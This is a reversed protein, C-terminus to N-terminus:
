VFILGEGRGWIVITQYQQTTYISLTVKQQHGLCQLGVLVEEHMVPDVEDQDFQLHNHVSVEEFFHVGCVCVCVCM